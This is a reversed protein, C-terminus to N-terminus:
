SSRPTIPMPSGGTIEGTAAIPLAIALAIPTRTGCAGNVGSRTSAASASAVSLLAHHAGELVGVRGRDFVRHRQERGAAALRHREGAAGIQRLRIFSSTSRGSRSILRLDIAEIRPMSRAGSPASRM